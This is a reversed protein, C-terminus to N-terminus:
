EVDFAEGCEQCVLPREADNLRGCRPCVRRAWCAPDGGEERDFADLDSPQDMGACVETVTTM